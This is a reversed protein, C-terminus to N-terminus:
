LDLSNAWTLTMSTQLKEQVVDCQDTTGASILSENFVM